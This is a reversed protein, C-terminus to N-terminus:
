SRAHKFKQQCDQCYLSVTQSPLIFGIFISVASLPSLNQYRINQSGCRPCPVVGKEAPGLELVERAAELDDEHVQVRVGGIANTYLWNMQAMTEDPLFAEIGSGELKM